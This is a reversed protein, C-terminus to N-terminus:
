EGGKRPLRRPVRWLPYVGGRGEPTGEGYLSRSECMKGLVKLSNRYFHLFIVTKSSLRLAFM